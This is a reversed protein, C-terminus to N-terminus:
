NRRSKLAAQDNAIMNLMVRVTSRFRPPMGAVHARLNHARLALPVDPRAAFVALQWPTHVTRTM